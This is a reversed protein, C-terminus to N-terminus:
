YKLKDTYERGSSIRLINVSYGDYRSLNTFADLTKSENQGDGQIINLDINLLPAYYRLSPLCKTVKYVDAANDNCVLIKKRAATTQKIGADHGSKEFEGINEKTVAISEVFLSKHEFDVEVATSIKNGYADPKSIGSSVAEEGTLGDFFNRLLQLITIMQGDANQSITGTLKGQKVAELADEIADYGFIPVGKPYNSAQLCGMAMGDNNSIVLDIEDDFKTAWNGMAETASSANWATGDTGTMARGDLEIVKYDKGNITLSGERVNKPESSGNWTGLATRIGKTRGLSDNHGMDGICLVYGITGDGNRDISAPDAKSFYDTIMKAQLLGGKVADNGVFFTKDNRNMLEMDIKGTQPDTPSVNFFIFPKDKNATKVAASKNCALFSASFVTILFFTFIIRKM